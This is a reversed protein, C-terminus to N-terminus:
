MMFKHFYADNGNSLRVIVLGRYGVPAIAEETGDLTKRALLRGDASYLEAVTGAEGNVLIVDGQRKASMSSATNVEEVGAYQEFKAYKMKTAAMIEGTIGDLIIVVVSTKTMDQVGFGNAVTQMPVDFTISYIEPDDAKMVSNLPCGNGQWDPWCGLGVHNFRYGTMASTGKTFVHVYPLVANKNEETIGFPALQDDRRGAYNNHQTWAANDGYLGDALLLVAAKYNANNLDISVQPKFNVTIKNDETYYYTQEIGVAIPSKTDLLAVLDNELTTLQNATSKKSRNLIAFPYIRGANLNALMQTPYTPGTMVGSAYPGGNAAIGIFRDPYKDMLYEMFSFGLPCFGCGIGTGEEEVVTRPYGWNCAVSASLEVSPVNPLNPTVRITYDVSEGYHMDLKDPFSFKYENYANSLQRTSSYTSYVKGDIILEAVFGKCDVPTRLKASCRIAYEGEEIYLGDSLIGLEAQYKVIRFDDLCVMGANQGRNVFAIYVDKGAYDSLPIVQETVTPGNVKSDAKLKYTKIPANKMFDDKTNGDTSVYVEFPNTINTYAPNLNYVTFSLMGGCDPISIKPTVLGADAVQSEDAFSSCSAAYTNGNNMTLLSWSIGDFFQSLSAAPTYPECWTTFPPFGSHDDFKHTFFTLDAVSQASAMLGVSCAAALLLQKKM